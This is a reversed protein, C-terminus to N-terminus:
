VRFTLVERPLMLVRGPDTIAVVRERGRHVVGVNTEYMDTIVLGRVLYFRLAAWVAESAQTPAPQDLLKRVRDLKEVIERFSGDGGMRLAWMSSSLPWTAGRYALLDEAAQHRAAAAEGDFHAEERWLLYLRLTQPNLEEGHSSRLLHNLDAFRDFGAPADILTRYRVIGAPFDEGALALAIAKSVFQGESQDYTAKLVWGPTQTGYVCGYGGCGLLDSSLFRSGV